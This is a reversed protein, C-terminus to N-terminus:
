KQLGVEDVPLQAAKAVEEFSLGRERAGSVFVLEMVALLSIKQRMMAFAVVLDAEQSWTPQM